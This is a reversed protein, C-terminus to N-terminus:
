NYRLSSYIWRNYWRCTGNWGYVLLTVFHCYRSQFMFPRYWEQMQYEQTHKDLNWVFIGQPGGCVCERKTPHIIMSSVRNGVRVICKEEYEEGNWTLTCLTCESNIYCLRGIFISIIFYQKTTEDWCIPSNKIIGYVSQPKSYTVLYVRVSFDTRVEQLNTSCVQKISCQHDNSLKPEYSVLITRQLYSQMVRSIILVHSSKVEKNVVDMRQSCKPFCSHLFLSKYKTFVPGFRLDEFVSKKQGVHLSIRRNIQEKSIILLQNTHIYSLLLTSMFLQFVHLIKTWNINILM